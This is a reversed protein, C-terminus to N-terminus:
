AQVATSRRAKRATSSSLNTQWCLAGVALASPSTAPDVISGAATQYQLPIGSGISFLDFRPASVVNVGFIAWGVTMPAGTTNGYCVAEIPPQTGNQTITSAAM